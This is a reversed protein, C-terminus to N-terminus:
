RRTQPADPPEVGGDHGVIIPTVDALEEDTPEMALAEQSAQRFSITPAEEGQAVMIREGEELSQPVQSQADVDDFQRSASGQQPIEGEYTPTPIAGLAIGLIAAKLLSRKKRPKKPAAKEYKRPVFPRERPAVEEQQPELVAPEELEPLPAEEPEEQVDEPQNRMRVGEAYARMASQYAWERLEEESDFEYDESDGYYVYSRALLAYKFEQESGEEDNMWSEFAKDANKEAEALSIEPAQEIREFLLEKEERREQKAAERYVRKYDRAPEERRKSARDEEERDETELVIERAATKGAARPVASEVSPDKAPKEPKASAEEKLPIERGYKDRRGEAIEKLTQRTTWAKRVPDEVWASADPSHVYILTDIQNLMKEIGQATLKRETYFDQPTGPARKKKEDGARDQGFVLTSTKKLFQEELADIDDMWNTSKPLKGKALQGLVDVVKKLRIEEIIFPNNKAFRSLKRSQQAAERAEEYAREARALMGAEGQVREAILRLAEDKTIRPPYETKAPKFGEPM